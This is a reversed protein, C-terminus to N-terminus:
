LKYGEDGEFEMWHPESALTIRGVAWNLVAPNNKLADIREPSPFKELVEFQDIENGSPAEFTYVLLYM